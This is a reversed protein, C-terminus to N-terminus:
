LGLLEKPYALHYMGNRVRDRFGVVDPSIDKDKYSNTTPRYEEYVDCFGYNFDEGASNRKKSNPNLSKGIM